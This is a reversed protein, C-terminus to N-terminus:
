QGEPEPALECSATVVDCRVYERLEHTFPNGDYIVLAVDTESEWYLDRVDKDREPMAVRAKTGPEGAKQFTVSGWSAEGGGAGPDAPSTLWAGWAGSPDLHVDQARARFGEPGYLYSSIDAPRPTDGPKWSHGGTVGGYTVTGDDAVGILREHSEDDVGRVLTAVSLRGLEDIGDPRVAAVVILGAKDQREVWAITGADPSTRVVHDAVDHVVGVRRAGRFLGVAEAGSASATRAFAITLGNVTTADSWAGPELTGDLYLKGDGPDVFTHLPRGVPLADATRTPTPKAPSPAADPGSLRTGAVIAAVVAAAAVVTVGAVRLRTRTRAQEARRVLESTDVPAPADLGRAVTALEDTLTQEFNM